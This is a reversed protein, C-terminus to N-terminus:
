LVSGKGLVRRNLLYEVLRPNDNLTQLLLPALRKAVSEEDNADITDRIGVQDLCAHIVEHLTVTRQVDYSANASEILLVGGDPDTLGLLPISEDEHFVGPEKAHEAVFDNSEVERALTKLKPTPKITYRLMGVKITKPMPATM